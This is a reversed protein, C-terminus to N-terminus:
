KIKFQVSIKKNSAVPTDGKKAAEWKPGEKVLRIAEEDCGDGLSKLVEVKDINGNSSITLELRVRGETGAELAKPPYRLKDKLYERYDSFGISPRPGSYTKDGETEAESSTVVVESLQAVDANLYIKNDAMESVVFEQQQMGIYNVILVDNLQAEIEFFGDMDTNTGIAMGKLIVNVGPLPDRTEADFVVGSVNPSVAIKRGSALGTDEDSAAMSSSVAKAKTSRAVSAINQDVEIEAVKGELSDKNLDQFSDEYPVATESVILEEEMTISEDKAFREQDHLTQIPVETEQKSGSDNSEGMSVSENELEYESSRTKLPAPPNAPNESKDFEIAEESKIALPTFSEDQQFFNIVLISSIILLLFVAAYPLTKRWLPIIQQEEEPTVREDLKDELDSLGNLAEPKELYGEMAEAEFPHNLLYKEVQYQEPPSLTGNVYAQM